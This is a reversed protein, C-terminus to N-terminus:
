EETLPMNRYEKEHTYNKMKDKLNAVELTPYTYASDGYM